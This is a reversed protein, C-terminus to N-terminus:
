LEIPDFGDSAEHSTENKKVIGAELIKQKECLPRFLFCNIIYDVM